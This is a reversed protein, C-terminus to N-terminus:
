VQQVGFAQSLIASEKAGNADFGAYTQWTGRSPVPIEAEELEFAVRRLHHRAGIWPSLTLCPLQDSSTLRDGPVPSGAEITSPPPLRLLLTKFGDSHSSGCCIVHLKSGLAALGCMLDSLGLLSLGRPVRRYAVKVRGGGNSARKFDYYSVKIARRYTPPNILHTLPVLAVHPHYRWTLTTDIFLGGAHVSKARSCSTASRPTM